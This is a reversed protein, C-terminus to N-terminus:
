ELIKSLAEVAQQEIRAIEQFKGAIKEFLESPESGAPQEAGSILSEINRDLSQLEDLKTTGRTLFLQKRENLLNRLKFLGPIREPLFLNGLEKWLLASERFLTGASLIAQEELIIAAEELFDSYLLRDAGEGSDKWFLQSYKYATFLGASIEGPGSLRKFWSNKGTSSTLDHIIAEYAKFGFNNASGKPPPSTFLAVTERIGELVAAKLQAVDPLSITAMHYRYKKVRGRATHFRDAPIPHGCIARDAILAHNNEPDYEVVIMPQMAWIGDGLESHEYGLTFVDALVIPVLGEELTEILKEGAKQPNTSNIIDQTMRLRDTIADWGYTHFSNRTLINIQPHYGTYHFIFYGFCIGGAIGALLAESFPKGNHPAVIGQYELANRISASVPARGGFQSYNELKAM